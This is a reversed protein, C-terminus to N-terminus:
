HPLKRCALDMIFGNGFKMECKMTENISNYPSNNELGREKLKFRAARTKV